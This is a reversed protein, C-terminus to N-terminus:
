AHLTSCTSRQFLHNGNCGYLYSVGRIAGSDGIAKNERSESNNIKSNWTNWLVNAWYLLTRPHFVHVHELRTGVALKSNWMM